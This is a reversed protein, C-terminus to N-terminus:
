LVPSVEQANNNRVLLVNKWNLAPNCWLIDRCWNSGKCYNKSQFKLKNRNNVKSAGTTCRFREFMALVCKARWGKWQRERLLDFKSVNRIPCNSHFVKMKAEYKTQKFKGSIKNEFISHCRFLANAPLLREVALTLPEKYKVLWFENNINQLIM